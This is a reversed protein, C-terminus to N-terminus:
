IYTKAGASYMLIIQILKEGGKEDGFTTFLLFLSLILLKHAIQGLNM